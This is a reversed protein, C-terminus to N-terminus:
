PSLAKEQDSTKQKDTDEASMKVNSADYVTLQRSRNDYHMGTGRLTSKGSVVLAPQNTFVQDIDPLIVLEQSRVDLLQNEEDPLRQVHADHQLIIREGTGDLIGFRAEGTTTPSGAQHNIAHPDTIEYTDNDPFHEMSSGDLRNFAYGDSNSRIMTFRDSWSDREHTLRRPPDVQISSLTYDSAWWTGFVLLALLLLAILGPTREKM